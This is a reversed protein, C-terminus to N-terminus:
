RAGIPRVTVGDRWSSEIMVTRRRAPVGRENRRLQGLLIDVAAAGVDCSNQNAGAIDGCGENWDLVAAGVKEPMSVGASRLWHVVDPNVSIVADPKHRRFWALFPKESFDADLYVPVRARAPQTQQWVSYGALWSHDTVEDQWRSLALGIRAYRRSALQGAVLRFTRYQDNVACHVPFAHQSLGIRVLAFQDWQLATFHQQADRTSLIVGSIGRAHLISNLRHSPMRSEAAWHAEVAFGQQAARDRAGVFFDRYSGPHNRWEDQRSHATLFALTGLEPRVRRRRLNAFISSLLPNASYGLRQALAQIRLCTERPLGPHNRLARSVTSQSVKALSAIRAQRASM